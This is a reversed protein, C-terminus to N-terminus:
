PTGFRIYPQSVQYKGSPAFKNGSVTATEEGLSIVPVPFTGKVNTNGFTNNEVAV